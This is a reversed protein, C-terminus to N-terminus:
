KRRTIYFYLYVLYRGMEELWINKKWFYSSCYIITIEKGSENEFFEMEKIV